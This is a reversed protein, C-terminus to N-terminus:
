MQLMWSSKFFFSQKHSEPVYVKNSSAERSIPVNFFGKWNWTFFFWTCKEPTFLICFYSLDVFSNYFYCMFKNSFYTSFPKQVLYPFQVGLEIGLVCSKEFPLKIKIFFIKNSWSWCIKAMALTWKLLLVYLLLLPLYFYM